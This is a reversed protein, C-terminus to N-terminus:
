LIYTDFEFKFEFFFFFGVMTITKYYSMSNIYLSSFSFTFMSEHGGLLEVAHVFRAHLTSTWRMRPSRMSRKHFPKPMFRPSLDAIGLPHHHHHLDYYQHPRLMLDPSIGAPTGGGAAGALCKPLTAPTSHLIPVHYDISASSSSSSSASRIYSVPYYGVRSHAPFPLHHHYVPIGRIPRLMEQLEPRSLPRLPQGSSSGEMSPNSLSLDTSCARGSSNTARRRAYVGTPSCDVAFITSSAATNPPRIHLSLDPPPVTVPSAEM